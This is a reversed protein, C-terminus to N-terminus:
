NMRKCIIKSIYIALLISAFDKIFTGVFLLTAPSFVGTGTSYCFYALGFIYMVVLGIVGFLIKRLVSNSNASAGCILVFPLFGVVFGGSPDTVHHFGGCFGSFIPAGLIGLLLYATVSYASNKVGMTYGCLAIAFVQMTIPFFPTPIVIQACVAIVATFLACFILDANKQKM